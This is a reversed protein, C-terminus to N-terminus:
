LYKKFVFGLLCARLTRIRLMLLVAGFSSSNCSVVLSEYIISTKKKLLHSGRLFTGCGAQVFRVHNWNFGKSKTTKNLL